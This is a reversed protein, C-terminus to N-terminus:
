LITTKRCKDLGKYTATVKTFVTDGAVIDIDAFILDNETKFQILFEIEPNEFPNIVKLYKINRAQVMRLHREFKANLIELAMQLLCVGPTIPNGPFHARYIEHSANLIVGARYRNGASETKGVTYFSNDLM